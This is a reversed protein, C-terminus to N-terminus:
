FRYGVGASVITSNIKRGQSSKVPIRESYLENRLSVNFEKYGRSSLWYRGEQYRVYPTIGNKLALSVGISASAKLMNMRGKLTGSAEQGIFADRVSYRGYYGLAEFFPMITGNSVEILYSARIIPGLALTKVENRTIGILSGSGSIMQMQDIYLGDTRVELSPDELTIYEAGAGIGIQIDPALFYNKFGRLEAGNGAFQTNNKDLAMDQKVLGVSIEANEPDFISGIEFELESEISQANVTFICILSLISILKM